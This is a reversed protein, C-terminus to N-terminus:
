ALVAGDDSRAQLNNPDFGAERIADSWRAWYRRSWDNESIGIETEFSQKGPPSGGNKLAVKQIQEIIYSKSVMPGRLRSGLTKELWTLGFTVSVSVHTGVTVSFSQASSEVLEGLKEVLKDLWEKVKELLQEPLGSTISGSELDHNFAAVIALVESLSTSEDLRQISRTLKGEDIM